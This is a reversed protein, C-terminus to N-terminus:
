RGVSITWRARIDESSAGVEMVLSGEEVVWRDVDADWYALESATLSLEVTRTEGPELTIRRFGKLEKKPRTVASHPHRVYLQVVEDGARRGTNTVDVRVNLTDGPSLQTASSRLHAYEFTTYSLGHGFPYLPEGDFYLYTGGERIDYELRPPLEDLSRVWTHVLRGAPNVDGFLVDALSSGMEQSNQAMHVIAPVHHETWTIAYPFSSALVVVTRPNARHVARILGEEELQISRRDVAERGWSEVPCEAWGLDDGCTPHNGVVVIAVDSMGALEVAAATDTGTAHRVAVGRGARDRIGELPTVAYLTDGSYWDLLVQDAFPGIVAISGLAAADLPLAGDNKLLAISKQTVLRALARHEDTQWPEPEGATGISRYAVRDQPDLQGLRIMVRYVGRLAADIDAETLLGAGLAERTPEVHRDLFQNVGARITAAAGWALDPYYAHDTILLGLGGGDTCIIGDHGWGQRTLDELMPHVQMPIGNVANYATMFAQADAEMIGRRFPVAYYEHLLREDFDSSGFTREDENSNALFHKMLSATRLYRPDDGQLGRVFAVTLEGVLHPDEGFSEETRGWRIDRALDANPARVVLGARDYDSQFLYRAEHAEAAAARRVLDPDWTMGLGVAQPFQTTPAPNRRGWNSPGGQAVGHLGEVHGSGVVGLRPVSPDTGLAAIKEELTMRTLLDDIRAEMPLAPDQFPWAGQAAAPSATVAMATVLVVAVVAVVSPTPRLPRRTTSRTRSSWAGGRTVPSM